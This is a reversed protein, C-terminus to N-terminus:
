LREWQSKLRSINDGKSARSLTFWVEHEIGIKFGGRGEISYYFELARRTSNERTWTGVGYDKSSLSLSAN